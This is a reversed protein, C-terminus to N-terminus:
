DEWDPSRPCAELLTLVRRHLAFAGASSEAVAKSAARVGETWLVSTPLLTAIGGLAVRPSYM